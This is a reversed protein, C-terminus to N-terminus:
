EKPASGAIPLEQVYITLHLKVKDGLTARHTRMGFESRQIVADAVVPCTVAIRGTCTSALLKFHTPRTEGRVTLKGLIDGGQELAAIPFPDSEFRIHPHNAVDFFEPSKVWEVYDDKKMEVKSADIEATVRATRAEADMLVQGDVTGFHGDVSFLWMVRVQFETHSRGHDLTLVVEKAAASDALVWTCALLLLAARM